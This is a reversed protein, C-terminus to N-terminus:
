IHSYGFQEDIKRFSMLYRLFSVQKVVKEQGDLLASAFVKEVDEMVMVAQILVNLKLLKVNEARGDMLATVSVVLMYEMDVAFFLVCAQFLFFVFSTFTDCITTEPIYIGIYNKLKLKYKIYNLM